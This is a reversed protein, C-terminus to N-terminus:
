GAFNIQVMKRIKELQIFAAKFDFASIKDMLMEYAEMYSEQDLQTKLTEALELADLSNRNLLKELQDLTRELEDRSIDTSPARKIEQSVPLMSVASSLEDMAQELNKIMKKSPINGAKFFNDIDKSVNYVNQASINGAVGKLTHVLHKARFIDDSRILESLDKSVNKFDSVTDGVLKAYLRSSGGVRDLGDKVNLGPLDEPIDPHEDNVPLSHDKVPVKEFDIWKALANYLLNRDIPKGLHDNMGAALSKERDQAMAAATMAIIPLDPFDERIIRTAEFGDMVPMQIDMLVADFDNGKVAETAKQGNEAISVTIGAMELVERAVQQNIANDEVLLVRVGSLAPAPNAFGNSTRAEEQKGPKIDVISNFLSSSTIPKTLVKDLDFDVARSEAQDYNGASSLIICTQRLAEFEQEAERLLQGAKLGDMDPLDSDIVVADFHCGKRLIDHIISLAQEGSTAERVKFNWSEFIERLIKRSSNLNDVVLAECESLNCSDFSYHQQKGVEFFASFSFVSGKDIESDVEIDGGMIKILRQSIILGLGTGGYKRTTSTDAQSFAQFLKTQQDPTMGIG